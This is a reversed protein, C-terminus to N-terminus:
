PGSLRMVHQYKSPLDLIGKVQGRRNRRVRITTHLGRHQQLLHEAPKDFCTRSPRSGNDAVVPPLTRLERSPESRLVAVSAFTECGM